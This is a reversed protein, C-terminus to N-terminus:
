GHLIMFLPNGFLDNLDKSRVYQLLDKLERFPLNVQVALTLSNQAAM